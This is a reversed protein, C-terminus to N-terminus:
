IILSKAHLKYKITPPSWKTRANDTDNDSIGGAAHLKKIRDYYSKANQYQIIADSLAYQAEQVQIHYLPADLEAIIQGKTVTQGENVYVKKLTGEIQFSLDTLSSSKLYGFFIKDAINSGSHVITYQVPRIIEQTKNITCGTALLIFISIITLTFLRKM